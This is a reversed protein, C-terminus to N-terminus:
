WVYNNFVWYSVAKTDVFRDSITDSGLVVVLIWQLVSGSEKTSFINQKTSKKM